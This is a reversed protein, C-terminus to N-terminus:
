LLLFDSGQETHLKGGMRREENYCGLLWENVPYPILASLAPFSIM